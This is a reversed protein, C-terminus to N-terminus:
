VDIQDIPIHVCWKVKSQFRAQKWKSNPIEQLVSKICAYKLEDFRKLLQKAEIPDIGIWHGETKSRIVTIGNQQLLLLSSKEDLEKNTIGDEIYYNILNMVLYNKGHEQIKSDMLRDFIYKGDSIQEQEAWDPVCYEKGTLSTLIPCFYQFNEVTRPSIKNNRKKIIKETALKMEKAKEEFQPWLSILSDILKIRMEDGEERSISELCYTKRKLLLEILVMRSRQAVDSHVTPPVHICAFIPMQCTYFSKEKEELTGRTINGGKNMLKAAELIDPIKNNKEFEDLILGKTTNGISQAICYATTKDLKKILEKGLIPEIIEEIFTSKGSSAIGRLCIWPRWKMASQVLVLIVAITIYDIMSEDKFTWQAVYKRINQFVEKFQQLKDNKTELSEKLKHLDICNSDFNILNKKYIPSSLFQVGDQSINLIEGGSVIVWENRFKWIGSKLERHNELEGKIHGQEVIYKALYELDYGTGFLLTLDHPNSVSKVPIPYVKKNHWVLINRNQRGIFGLVEFPYKYKDPYLKQLKNSIEKEIISKKLKKKKTKEILKNELLSAAVQNGTGKLRCIKDVSNSIFESIEETSASNIEFSDIFEDDTLLNNEQELFTIVKEQYELQKTAVQQDSKEDIKLKKVEELSSFIIGLKKGEEILEKKTLKKLLNIQPPPKDKTTMM